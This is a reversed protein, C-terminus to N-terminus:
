FNSVSFPSSIHLILLNMCFPTQKVMLYCQLQMLIILCTYTFTVIWLELSCAVDVNISSNLFFTKRRNLVITQHHKTALCQENTWARLLIHIVSFQLFRSSEERSKLSCECQKRSLPFGDLKFKMHYSLCGNDYGSFSRLEECVLISFLQCM